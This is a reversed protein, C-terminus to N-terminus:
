RNDRGKESADRRADRLLHSALAGTSKGAGSEVFRRATDGLGGGTLPGWEPAPDPEGTDRAAQIQAARSMVADNNNAILRDPNDRRFEEAAQRIADAGPQVQAHESAREPTQTPPAQYLVAEISAAVERAREDSSREAHPDAWNELAASLRSVAAPDTDDLGRNAAAEVHTGWQALMRVRHPEIDGRARAARYDALDHAFSPNEMVSLLGNRRSADTALDDAPDTTPGDETDAARPWGIDEPEVDTPVFGSPFSADTTQQDKTTFRGADGRPHASESWGSGHVTSM